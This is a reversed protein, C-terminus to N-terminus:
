YLHTTIALLGVREWSPAQNTSREPPRPLELAIYICESPQSAVSYTVGSSLYPLSPQKHSSLHLAGGVGTSWPTSSPVTRQTGYNADREEYSM